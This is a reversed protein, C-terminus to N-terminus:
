QPRRLSYLSTGDPLTRRDLIGDAVMEELLRGIREHATEYRQRPLWWQVIGDLSDAAQPHQRLYEIVSAQVESEAYLFHEPVLSM